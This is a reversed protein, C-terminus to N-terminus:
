RLVGPSAQHRAAAVDALHHRDIKGNANLPLAPLRRISAPVMYGPLRDRVAETLLSDLDTDGTYLAHLAPGDGSPVAVVVAEHVGPHTLLVCEIEGPEVRYGHIKVQDDVRGLHILQGDLWQVRDGTRYWDGSAPRGPVPVFREGARRVFRGHNDAPDLYGDFRQSGRVCLEGSGSASGTDDLLVAELHPYPRGIPVTGNPSCPWSAGLAGLRYATCTVALETPGYLNEVVSGPAARAWAAAQDLTFQEGAFLSWRLGPMCAPQLARLRRAITIVSPVSFWHTIRHRNIFEVPALIEEASPVVLTAGTGWSVFMDFVSPDFTLDFTQSLRCGPGVVYRRACYALYDALNRHRVPVGKPQGTSGSTFLLYATDGPQGPVAPSSPLGAAWDGTLRVAAAASGALVRALQGVGEEDAVVVDVGGHQCMQRNRAATLRPNLPVVTAGARLAALYGAYGALSRSTLLGVRTPQRDGATGLVGALREALSLLERYTLAAGGVELAIQEPHRRATRRFWTFLTGGPDAAPSPSAWRPPNKTMRGREDGGM